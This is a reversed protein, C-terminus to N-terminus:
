PTKAPMQQTHHTKSYLLESSRIPVPDKIQVEFAILSGPYAYEPLRNLRRKSMSSSTETLNHKLFVTNRWYEGFFIM